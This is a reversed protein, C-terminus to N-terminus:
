NCFRSMRIAMATESVEFARAMSQISDEDSAAGYRLNHEKLYKSILFEPMLLEAAFRTAPVEILVSGKSCESNRRLMTITKDVHVGKNLEDRYLLIRGIEHAVTFRRRPRPHESNVVACPVGEKIFCLGSLEDDLEQYTIKLIIYNVVCSKNVFHPFYRVLRRDIPAVVIGAGPLNELTPINIMSDIFSKWSLSGARKHNSDM